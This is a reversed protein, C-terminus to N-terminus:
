SNKNGSKAEEPFGIATVLEKPNGDIEVFTCDIGKEKNLYEELRYMKDINMNANTSLFILYKASKKFEFVEGNALEIKSMAEKALKKNEDNM